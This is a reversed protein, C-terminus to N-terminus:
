SCSLCDDNIAFYGFNKPVFPLNLCDFISNDMQLQQYNHCHNCKDRVGGNIHNRCHCMDRADLENIYKAQKVVDYYGNTTYGIHLDCMTYEKCDCQGKVLKKCYSDPDCDCGYDPPHHYIREYEAIKVGIIYCFDKSNGKCCPSSDTIVINNPLKNFTPFERIYDNEAVTYQDNIDEYLELSFFMSHYPTKYIYNKYEELTLKFGYCIHM